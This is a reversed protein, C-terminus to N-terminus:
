RVVRQLIRRGSPSPWTSTICIDTEVGGGGGNGGDRRCLLGMGYSVCGIVRTLDM